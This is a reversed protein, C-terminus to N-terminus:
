HILALDAPLTKRADSSEAQTLPSIMRTVPPNRYFTDFHWVQRLAPCSFVRRFCFNDRPLEGLWSSNAASPIRRGQCARGFNELGQM